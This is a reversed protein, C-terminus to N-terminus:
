FPTGELVSQVGRLKANARELAQELNYNCESLYSVDEDRKMREDELREVKEILEYNSTVYMKIIDTDAHSHALWESNVRRLLENDKRENDLETQIDASHRAEKRLKAETEELLEAMGEADTQWRDLTERLRVLTADYNRKITALQADRAEILLDAADLKDKQENIIKFQNDNYRRLDSITAADEARAQLMADTALMAYSEMEAAKELAEHLRDDSSM